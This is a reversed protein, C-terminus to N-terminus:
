VLGVKKLAENLKEFSKDVIVKKYEDYVDEKPIQLILHHYIIQTQIPNLSKYLNSGATYYELSEIMEVADTISILRELETSDKLDPRNTHIIQFEKNETCDKFGAIFIETKTPTSTKENM